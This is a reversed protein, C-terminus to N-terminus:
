VIKELISKVMAVGTNIGVKIKEIDNENREVRTIILKDKFNPNYIVYDCWKRDTVLMQMQMQWIHATDIKKNCLFEVFKVDNICKIEILGDDGIIGDPSAGTNSDLECFGIKDVSLDTKIEYLNRASDELEHGREMDLNSYGEEKKNTLIEAVKKYVLTLLGAGNASIAQADSATFKGLRVNFWELSNQTIEHVIM